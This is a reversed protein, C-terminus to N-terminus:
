RFYEAYYKIIEADYGDSEPVAVGKELALRKATGYIEDPSACLWVCDAGIRKLESIFGEASQNERYKAIIPVALRYNKM